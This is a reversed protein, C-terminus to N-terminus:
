LLGRTVEAFHTSWKAGRAARVAPYTLVAGLALCLWAAALCVWLIGAAPYIYWRTAM